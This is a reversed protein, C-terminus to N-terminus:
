ETYGINKLRRAWEEDLEPSSLSDRIAPDSRWKQLLAALAAVKDPEQDSVDRREGPDAELDFLQYAPGAPNPIMILKHRGQRVSRWKGEDGELYINKRQPYRRKGHDLYLPESESFAPHHLGAESGSSKMRATLDRGMMAAPPDIGSLSLVTPPLDLLQVLGDVRRRL